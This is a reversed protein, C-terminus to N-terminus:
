LPPHTQAGDKGSVVAGRPLKSIRCVGCGVSWIRRRGGGGEEIPRPLHQCTPEVPHDLEEGGAPCMPGLWHWHDAFLRRGVVSGDDGFRLGRPPIKHAPHLVAQGDGPGDRGGHRGVVDFAAGVVWRGGGDGHCWGGFRRPAGDAGYHGGDEVDASALAGRRGWLGLAEQRGGGSAAPCRGAVVRSRAGVDKALRACGIEGAPRSGGGSCAASIAAGENRRCGQARGECVGSVREAPGLPIGKPPHHHSAGKSSTVPPSSHPERHLSNVRRSLHRAMPPHPHISARGAPAPTPTPIQSPTLICATIRSRAEDANVGPLPLPLLIPDLPPSLTGSVYMHINVTCIHRRCIPAVPKPNPRETHPISVVKSKVTM